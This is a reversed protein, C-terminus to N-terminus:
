AISPQVLKCTFPHVELVAEIDELPMDFKRHGMKMKTHTYSSLFM